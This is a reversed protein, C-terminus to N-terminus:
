DTQSKGRVADAPSSRVGCLEARPVTASSERRKGPYISILCCHYGHNHYRICKEIGKTVSDRIFIGTIDGDPQQM